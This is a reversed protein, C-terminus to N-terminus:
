RQKLLLTSVFVLAVVGLIVGAAGVGASSSLGGQIDPASVPINTARIQALIARFTAYHKSGYDKSYGTSALADVFSEVSDQGAAARLPAYRAAALLKVYGAMGATPTAYARFASPAQGALMKDRTATLAGLGGADVYWPPRWYTPFNLHESGSYFGGASLNGFNQQKLSKGGGTEVWILAEFYDLETATLDAWTQALLARVDPMSMPTNTAPVEGM